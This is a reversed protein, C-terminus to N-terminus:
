ASQGLQKQVPYKVELGASFPYTRSNFEKNCDHLCRSNKEVRGTLLTFNRSGTTPAPLWTSSCAIPTASTERRPKQCKSFCCTAFYFSDFGIMSNISAQEVSHGFPDIHWAM